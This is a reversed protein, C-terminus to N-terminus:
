SYSSETSISKRRLGFLGGGKSTTPRKVEHTEKISLHDVHSSPFVGFKGKSNVGTWCWHDQYLWGVNRITDGRDFALWGTRGVDKPAWKWKATVSVASSSQLSIESQRPGEVDVLKAPFSSRVGDHWGVCWKGGWKDPFEVGVIRAGALFRLVDESGDPDVLAKEGPRRAHAKVATASPLTSFAREPVPSPAPPEPFHLDYDEELDDGPAVRGYLVTVGPVEPLPQPHRSLHRMLADLTQFVTADGERVTHGTQTCFLCAFRVESVSKAVM